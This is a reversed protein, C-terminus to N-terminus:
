LTWVSAGALYDSGDRALTRSMSVGSVLLHIETIFNNVNRVLTFSTNFGALRAFIQGLNAHNSIAEAIKDALDKSNAM